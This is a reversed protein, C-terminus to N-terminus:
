RLVASKKQVVKRRPLFLVACTMETNNWNAAPGTLATGNWDIMEILGSWKLWHRQFTSAATCLLSLCVWLFAEHRHTLSASLIPFTEACASTRTRARRDNTQWQILAGLSGAEKFIAANGPPFSHCRAMSVLGGRIHLLLASVKSQRSWRCPQEAICLHSMKSNQLFLDRINSWHVLYSSWQWTIM